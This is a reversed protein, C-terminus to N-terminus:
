LMHAKGKWRRSSTSAIDYNISCELNLLERRDRDKSCAGKVERFHDDEIATLLRLNVLFIQYSQATAAVKNSRSFKKEFFIYNM